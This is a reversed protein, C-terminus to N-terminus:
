VVGEVILVFGIVIMVNCFWCGSRDNASGHLRSQLLASLILFRKERKPRLHSSAMREATVLGPDLAQRGDNYLQVKIQQNISLDADSSGAGNTNSDDLVAEYIKQGM